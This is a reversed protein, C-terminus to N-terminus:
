SAAFAILRGQYQDIASRIRELRGAGLNAM